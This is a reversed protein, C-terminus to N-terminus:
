SKTSGVAQRIERESSSGAEAKFAKVLQSARAVTIGMTRGIEKLSMGSDRLSAAHRMKERTSERVGRPRTVEAEYYVEALELKAPLLLPIDEAPDIASLLGILFNHGRARLIQKPVLRKALPFAELAELMPTPDTDEPTPALRYVLWTELTARNVLGRLEAWYPNRALTKM